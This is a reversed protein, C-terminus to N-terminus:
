PARKGRAAIALATGSVSVALCALAKGGTAASPPAKVDAKALARFGGAVGAIALGFGTIMAANRLGPPLRTM